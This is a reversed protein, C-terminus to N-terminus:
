LSEEEIAKLSIKKTTRCKKTQRSREAKNKTGSQAKVDCICRNRLALAKANNNETIEHHNHQYM